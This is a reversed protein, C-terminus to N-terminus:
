QSIWKATSLETAQGKLILSVPTSRAKICVESSNEHLDHQELDFKDVNARSLHLRSSIDFCLWGWGRQEEFAVPWQVCLQLISEKLIMSDIRFFYLLAKYKYNM